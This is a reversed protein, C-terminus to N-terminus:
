PKACAESISGGAAGGRGRNSQAHLCPPSNKHKIVTITITDIEEVEVKGSFIRCPNKGGKNDCNTFRVGDVSVPVLNGQKDFRFLVNDLDIKNADDVPPQHTEGSGGQTLGVSVCGLLGIFAIPPLLHLIKSSRMM